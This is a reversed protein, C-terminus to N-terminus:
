DLLQFFNGLIFNTYKWVCIGLVNALLLTNNQVYLNYYEGLTKIDFAICFRETHAYDSDTIDEMNLHNYFDEQERLSTENIEPLWTELM